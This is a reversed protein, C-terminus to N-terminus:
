ARLAKQLQAEAKAYEAEAEKIQPYKAEIAENLLENALSDPTVQEGLAKAVWRLRKKTHSEIYIEAGRFTM